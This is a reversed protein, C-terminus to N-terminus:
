LRGAPKALEPATRCARTRTDRGSTSARTMCFSFAANDNTIPRGSQWTRWDSMNEVVAAYALLVPISVNYARSIVRSGTRNASRQPRLEEAALLEPRDLFTRRTAVRTARILPFDAKGPSEVRSGIAASM